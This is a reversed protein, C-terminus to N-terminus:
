VDFSVNNPNNITPGDLSPKTSNQLTDLASDLRLLNYILALMLLALALLIVFKASKNM